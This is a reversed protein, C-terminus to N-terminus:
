AKVMRSILVASAYLASVAIMAGLLDNIGRVGAAARAAVASTEGQSAPLAPTEPYAPEDTVSGDIAVNAYPSDPAEQTATWHPNTTLRAAREKFAAARGLLGESPDEGSPELRKKLASGVLVRFFATFEDLHLVGDQSRDCRVLLEHCKKPSPTTFHGHDSIRRCLVLVEDDSLTGSKSTGASHFYEEATKQLLDDDGLVASLKRAMQARTTHHPTTHAHLLFNSVACINQPPNPWGLRLSAIPCTPNHRFTCRAAFPLAPGAPHRSTQVM